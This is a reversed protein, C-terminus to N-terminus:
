ETEEGGDDEPAEDMEYVLGMMDALTTMSPSGGFLDALPDDGNWRAARQASQELEEPTVPGFEPDDYLDDNSAMM